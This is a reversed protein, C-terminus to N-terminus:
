INNKGISVISDKSGELLVDLKWHFLAVHTGFCRYTRCVCPRGWQFELKPEAKLHAAALSANHFDALSDSAIAM